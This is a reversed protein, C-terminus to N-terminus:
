RALIESILVDRIESILSPSLIQARHGFSADGDGLWGFECILNPHEHRAVRRGIFAIWCAM